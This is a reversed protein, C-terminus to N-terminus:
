LNKELDGSRFKVETARGRVHMCVHAVLIEHFPFASVPQRQLNKERSNDSTVRDHLM